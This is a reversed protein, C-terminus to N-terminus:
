SSKGSVIDKIIDAVMKEPIETEGKIGNGAVWLNIATSVMLVERKDKVNGAIVRAIEGKNKFKVEHVIEITMIQSSAIREIEDADM